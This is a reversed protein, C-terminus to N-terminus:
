RIPDSDSGVARLRATDLRRVDAPRATHCRSRAWALIAAERATAATPRGHLPGRGIPKLTTMRATASM